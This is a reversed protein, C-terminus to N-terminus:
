KNYSCINMLGIYLCSIGITYVLDAFLVHWSSLFYETSNKGGLEFTAVVFM